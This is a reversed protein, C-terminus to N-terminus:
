LRAERASDVGTLPNLSGDRAGATMELGSFNMPLSPPSEKVFTENLKTQVTGEDKVGWIPQMRELLRRPDQYYQKRRRRWWVAVSVILLLFVAAGSALSAATYTGERSSTRSGQLLITSSLGTRVFTLTPSLSMSPFSSPVLSLDTVLPRTPAIIPRFSRATPSPSPVLTAPQTSPSSTPRPSATSPSASPALTLCSTGLGDNGDVYNFSSVRLAM